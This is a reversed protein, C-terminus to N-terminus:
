IVLARGVGRSTIYASDQVGSLTCLIRFSVYSFCYSVYECSLLDIRLMERKGPETVMHKILNLECLEFMLEYCKGKEFDPIFEIRIMM